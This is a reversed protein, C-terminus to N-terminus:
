GSWHLEVWKSEIPQQGSPLSVVTWTQNVLLPAFTDNYDIGLQQNYGKAVLRAKYREVQGTSNYKTKYVWKSGIPQHGSPLSVVTWTQNVLLADLEADMALQWEPMKSAQLFTTPESVSHASLIAAQFHPSFKDYSLFSSIPHATPYECIYDQLHTPRFFLAVLKPSRLLHFVQRLLSM